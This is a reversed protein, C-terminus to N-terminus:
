NYFKKVITNEDEYLIEEKVNKFNTAREVSNLGNSNYEYYFGVQTNEDKEIEESQSIFEYDLSDFMSNILNREEEFIEHIKDYIGLFEEFPGINFEEDIPEIEEVNTKNIKFNTQRNTNNYDLKPTSVYVICSATLEGDDSVALVSTRGESKGTVVGDSVVAVEPNVSKWNIKQNDANFPFVQALLVVSKDVDVYAHSKNISIDNVSIINANSNKKVEGCAVMFVCCFILFLCLIKKKMGINETM